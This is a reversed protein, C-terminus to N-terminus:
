KVSLLEVEFTLGANPPIVPPRGQAGYALESPIILRRKGGVKMTAVGEDWGKIVRGRGLVFTFPQGGGRSSDFKTGDKLWGTYHVTVTRGAVAGEGQGIVLDIYKLGSSTTITKAPGPVAEKVAAGAAELKGPAEETGSEQAATATEQAASAADDTREAVTESKTKEGGCGGIAVVLLAALSLGAVALASTHFKSMM